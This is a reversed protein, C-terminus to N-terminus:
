ALPVIVAKRNVDDSFHGRGTTDEALLVDGRRFTRKTGDGIEIILEGDMIFLFQRRPATHWVGKGDKEWFFSERAKMAASTRGGSVYEKLPVEVDEFHSQGDAGAYLRTYKM